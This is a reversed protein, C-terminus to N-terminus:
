RHPNEGLGFSGSAVDYKVKEIGARFIHAGVRRKMCIGYVTSFRVAEVPFHLCTGPFMQNTIDAPEEDTCNSTRSDSM